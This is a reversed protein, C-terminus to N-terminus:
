VTNNLGAPDALSNNVIDPISAQYITILKKLVIDEVIAAIDGDMYLPTDLPNCRLFAQRKTEEECSNFTAAANPSEWLGSLTVNKLFIDNYLYLYPGEGTDLITFFRSSEKTGRSTMKNKFQAWEVYDAKFAANSNTVSNLFISKPIPKTSKLWTCGTPVRCPCINTDAEEMEVCPITQVNEVGIGQRSVKTRKIYTTRATLLKDYILHIPFPNDKTPFGQRDLSTRISEALERYTRSHNNEEAM